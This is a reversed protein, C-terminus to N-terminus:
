ENNNEEMWLNIMESSDKQYQNQRQIEQEFKEDTLEDLSSINFHQTPITFVQYGDKTKNITLGDIIFKNNINNM